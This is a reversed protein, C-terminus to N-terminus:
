AEYQRMTSLTRSDLPLRFPVAIALAAVAIQAPSEHFRGVIGHAVVREDSAPVLAFARALMADDGDIRHSMLKLRKLLTVVMTVM